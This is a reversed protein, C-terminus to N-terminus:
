LKGKRELELKSEIWEKETYGGIAAFEKEEPTLVMKRTDSKNNQSSSYSNRVGGVASVSELNKRKKEAQAKEAIMHEEIADFYDESFRLDGRGAADLQADLVNAYKIVSEALLKNYNKSGVQLEKHSSIWDDVLEREIEEYSDRPSYQQQRQAAKNESTNAWRELENISHLAKTIVIDAEIVKESDGDNIAKRKLDKGKELEAYVNRGYQYTGAVEAQSLMEQLRENEEQAARLESKTKYLLRKIKWPKDLKKPAREKLELEEEHLEESGEEPEDEDESDQSEEQQEPQEEQKLPEQFALPNNQLEDIKKFAEELEAQGSMDEHAFKDSELIEDDNTM